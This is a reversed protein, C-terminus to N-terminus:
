KDRVANSEGLKCELERLRENLQSIYIQQNEVTEWIQSVLKGLPPSGAKKWKKEGDIWPLHHEKEYFAQVEEITKVKYAPKYVFDTLLVNDDYVAVANITGAGKSGGTPSGVTLGGGSNLRMQSVNDGRFDIYDGSGTADRNFVLIGGDASGTIAAKGMTEAASTSQFSISMLAGADNIQYLRFYGTNAHASNDSVAFVSQPNLNVGLNGTVHTPVSILVSDPDGTIKSHGSSAEWGAGWQASISFSALLIFLIKYKM